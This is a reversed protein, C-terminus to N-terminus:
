VQQLVGTTKANVRIDKHALLLTIYEPKGSGAAAHLPTRGKRVGETLQTNVDIGPASLLLKLCETKGHQAALHLPTYDGLNLVGNITRANVDIKKHALLLGVCETKGKETAIHLATKGSDFLGRTTANVDIGDKNLIVKLQAVNNAKVAKFM